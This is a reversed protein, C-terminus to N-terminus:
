LVDAQGLAVGAGPGHRDPQQPLLGHQGIVHGIGDDVGGADVESPLRLGSGAIDGPERGIGLVPRGGPLHGQGGGDGGVQHQASGGQEDRGPSRDQRQVRGVPGLCPGALEAAGGHLAARHQGAARQVHAAGVPHQVREIRGGPGLLPLDVGPRRDGSVQDVLVAHQVEGGGSVVRGARREPRHIGVAAAVVHDAVGDGAGGRHREVLAAQGVAHGVEVAGRVGAPGVQHVRDVHGGHDVLERDVALQDHLVVVGAGAVGFAAVGGIPDGQGDPVLVAQGPGALRDLQPGGPGQGHDVLAARDGQRRVRRDPHFGVGRAVQGQRQRGIVVALGAAAAAAARVQGARRQEGPRGEHRGPFGDDDVGVM